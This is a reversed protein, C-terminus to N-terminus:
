KKVSFEVVCKGSTDYYKYWVTIGAAFIAQMEPTALAQRSVNEKLSQKESDTLSKTITYIYSYAKGPGAEVRDWRTFEDLQKPLTKNAENAFREIQGEPSNGSRMVNTVVLFAILAGIAGAIGGAIGGTKKTRAAQSANMTSKELTSLPRTSNNEMAEM